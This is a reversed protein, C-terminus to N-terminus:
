FGLILDTLASITMTKNAMGTSKMVELFGPRYQTGAKNTAISEKTRDDRCVYNYAM